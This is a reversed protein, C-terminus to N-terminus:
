ASATLEAANQLYPACVECLARLTFPKAIVPVGWRAIDAELAKDGPYGTVFILRRAMAPQAERLWLFFESGDMMPMRIDSIVLAYREATLRELAEIGNTAVDVHCAFQATLMEEMLRRVIPEDEVVLVRGGRPVVPTRPEPAPLAYPLQLPTGDEIPFSVTFSAGEGPRSDVTIDGNHRRVISFCVSLGLGTGREPGKTTFFPDFIRNLNEAAIGVGNDRVVLLATRAPQDVVLELTGDPRDGLAQIANLALNIVVQKVEAPDARIWVPQPPLTTRVACRSERLKFRLMSLAEEVITRLDVGHMTASSPKSLQLLQRIIAAAEAISKGVLELYHDRQAGACQAILESFGLVPTLKNNLEHAIGGVLTDLLTQKEQRLVHRELARQETIDDLCACIQGTERIWGTSCRFLRPGRGPINLTFDRQSPAAADRAYSELLAMFAARETEDVWAVLSALGASDPGFNLLEALRRNHEHVGGQADLLAVGLTHSEFLGLYLGQSLRLANNAQALEIHQRRLEGLQESVLRSQLRALADISVLGLLGNHRDVLAIDEHFEDGHRGLARDLIERVPTTDRFILPREVQALHAPERGYLAFGFRSGLLNGLRLRSCIGTVVGERVLALFEVRRESFTQRVAELATESEVSGAHHVLSGLATTEARLATTWAPTDARSPPTPALAPPFSDMRVM